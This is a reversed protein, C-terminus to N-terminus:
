LIKALFPHIISWFIFSNLWIIGIQLHCSLQYLLFSKYKLFVTLKLICTSICLCIYILISLYFSGYMGINNLRYYHVGISIVYTLKWCFLIVIDINILSLFVYSYKELCCWSFCCCWFASHFSFFIWATFIPFIQHLFCIWNINFIFNYYDLFWFSVFHFLEGISHILYFCILTLVLIYQLHLSGNRLLCFSFNLHENVTSPLPKPYYLCVLAFKQFHASTMSSFLVAFILLINEIFCLFIGWIYFSIGRTGSLYWVPLRDFVWPYCVSVSIKPFQFM